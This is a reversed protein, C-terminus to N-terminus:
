HILSWEDKSMRYEYSPVEKKLGDSYFTGEQMLIFGTKEILNKSALNYQFCCAWVYKIGISFLYDLVGSIVESMIGQRHYKKNLAFGLEKTDKRGEESDEHIAIYGIVEDTGKHVIAFTNEDSVWKELVKKTGDITKHVAWGVMEGVEPQSGFTYVDEVDQRSFNRLYVRDAEYLIM